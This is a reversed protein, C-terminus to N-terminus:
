KNKLKNKTVITNPFNIKCFEEMQSSGSVHDSHINIHPVFINNKKMWVLLDLGTDVDKGLDYDLTIFDFKIISLLTRAFKVERVCQFGEEPFDRRDDLFLKNKKM